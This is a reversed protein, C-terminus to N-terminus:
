FVSNFINELEKNNKVIDKGNKTNVEISNHFARPIIFYPVYIKGSKFNFILQLANDGCEAVSFVENEFSAINIATKCGSSLERVSIHTDPEFKSAIRMDGVFQVGDIYKIIHQIDKNEFDIHDIYRDFYADNYDCHKINVTYIQLM